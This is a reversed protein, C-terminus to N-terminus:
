SFSNDCLLDTTTTSDTLTSEDVFEQHLVDPNWLLEVDIKQTAPYSSVGPASGYCHKPMNNTQYRILVPSDEDDEIEYRCTICNRAFVSFTTVDNGTDPEKAYVDDGTEHDPTTECNSITVGAGATDWDDTELYASDITTGGCSGSWLAAFTECDELSSSYANSKSLLLATSPLIAM